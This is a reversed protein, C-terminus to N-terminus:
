EILIGLNEAVREALDRGPGAYLGQVGPPRLQWQGRSRDVPHRDGFIVVTEVQGHGTIEAQRSHWIIGAVGRPDAHISTAVRRTCPYHEAASTILQSRDVGMRALAADRLDALRAPAPSAVCALGMTLLQGEPIGPTSLLDLSAGSADVSHFVSELLAATEDAALYLSPVRAGGADDIPSFRSDGLGPNYEDYGFRNDYARYWPRDDAFATVVEWAPLTVVVPCQHPRPCTLAAPVLGTM